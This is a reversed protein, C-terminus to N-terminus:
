QHMMLHEPRDHNDQPIRELRGHDYRLTYQPQPKGYGDQPPHEPGRHDNGDRPAQEKQPEHHRHHSDYRQDSPEPLRQEGDDLQVINKHPSAEITNCFGLSGVIIATGLTISVLTKSILQM